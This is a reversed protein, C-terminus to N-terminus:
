ATHRTGFVAAAFAAGYTLGGTRLNSAYITM